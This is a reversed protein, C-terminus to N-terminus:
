SRSLKDKLNSGPSREHIKSLVEQFGADPKRIGLRISDGFRVDTIVVRRGGGCADCPIKKEEDLESMKRIVITEKGCDQCKLDYTPM